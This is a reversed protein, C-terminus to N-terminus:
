TALAELRTVWADFRPCQARITSLGIAQAIQPGDIRRLM